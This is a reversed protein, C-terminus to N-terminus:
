WMIMMHNLPVISRDIVDHNRFGLLNQPPELKLGEVQYPNLNLFPWWTGDTSQKKGLLPWPGHHSFPWVGAPNGAANWGFKRSTLNMLFSGDETLTYFFTVDLILFPICMSVGAAWPIRWLYRPGAPSCLQFSAHRLSSPQDGHCPHYPKRTALFDFFMYRCIIVLFKSARKQMSSHGM